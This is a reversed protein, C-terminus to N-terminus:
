KTAKIDIQLKFEDNIFDDRLDNFFKASKFKIDYETRDISFQPTTATLTNGDVNVKAKFNVPKTIDKITLNGNIMHTGDPDNNLASSSTVTYTAKPFKDVNFFDQEKGPTTGKLHAELNQKSDGELDTVTIGTMDIEITGGTILGNAIIISGASVPVTGNHVGTPKSGQWKIQSSAADITYTGDLSASANGQTTEEANNEANNNDTKEKCATISFALFLITYFVFTKM